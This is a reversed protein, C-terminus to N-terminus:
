NAANCDGLFIDDEHFIFTDGYISILREISLSQINGRLIEENPDNRELVTKSDEVKGGFYIKGSYFILESGEFIEISFSTVNPSHMQYFKRLYDYSLVPDKLTRCYDYPDNTYYKVEVRRM